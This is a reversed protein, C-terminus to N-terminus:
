SSLEAVMRRHWAVMPEVQNFTFLHLGRVDAAPDAITPALAMLLREPSFSRRFLLGLIQRNKRLYGVSGGVGIRAAVRLLRRLEVTGPLGVHVPLTIGSARARAIWAAIAEADFTMQTTMSTAYPQKARLAALLTGEPVSPHGEPYGPVGIRTFPHGVEELARLLTVGDSFAGPDRRDGGVVFVDRMGAARCRELLTELHARDRIMHAALHPMASYGRAILAECLEITSEIGHSPSATVTTAAGHPLAEARSLADKLPILEFLPREVLTRLASREDDSLVPAGRRLSSM